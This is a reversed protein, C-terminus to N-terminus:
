EPSLQRAAGLVERLKVALEETSFPKFLVPFREAILGEQVVVDASYGTVFIVPLDAHHQDIHEIMDLVTKKGPMKVDSIVLDADIGGELFLIAHDPNVASIIRYGLDCLASVVAERVLTDDEVVLVLENGGVVVTESTPEPVVDHTTVPFCMTVTSGEGLTSEVTVEGNSNDVFNKVMPLGLGTGSGPAKTTFFPEFVRAIVEESMGSGNDRMSIAVYDRPEGGRERVVDKVTLRVRGRGEVADRANIALNILANELYTKDVLINHPEGEIQISFAVEAGVAKRLLDSVEEVFHRPCVPKASQPKRGSFGALQSSLRAAKRISERVGKVSDRSADDTVRKQLQDVNLAMVFLLNNLDHAVGGALNGVLELKQSESNLRESNGLRRQLQKVERELDEIRARSRFEAEKFADVNTSCGVWYKVKGDDDHVPSARTMVWRFQGTSHEFLRYCFPELKGLALGTSFTSSAHQFDDPHVASIWKTNNHDVIDDVGFKHRNSTKNTWFIEASSRALFVNQPFEDLIRGFEAELGDRHQQAAETQAQAIAYCQVMSVGGDDDEHAPMFELRAGIKPCDMAVMRRTAAVERMTELVATVETLFHEDHRMLCEKIFRTMVPNAWSVLQSKLDFLAYAMQSDAMDSIQQDLWRNFM